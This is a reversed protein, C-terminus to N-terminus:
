TRVECALAIQDRLAAIKTKHMAWLDFVFQVTSGAGDGAEFRGQHVPSVPGSAALQLELYEGAFVIVLRRTTLFVDTGNDRKHGGISMHTGDPHDIRVRAAHFGLVVSEDSARLLTVNRALRKRLIGHAGVTHSLAQDVEPAIDLERLGGPLATWQM